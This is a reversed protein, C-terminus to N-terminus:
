RRRRRQEIGIALATTALTPLGEPVAALALAITSQLIRLLPRGRLLGVAFVFGCVVAGGIVLQRALAGLQRQLPTEPAPMTGVLQHIRGAKTQRGTAVAVATASRSAIVTGRYLMSACGALPSDAPVPAGTKAVPLSGCTLMSEDAAVADADIIRADAAAMEGAHLSLLDGPVIQDVAV